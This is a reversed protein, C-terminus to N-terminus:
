GYRAELEDALAAYALAGASHPAYSGIPIGVTPAEALKVNIPIVTTFVLDGYQERVQQEVQLSLNTRRDALTCVIGGIVLSPQIERVLEITQELQPMAKLAYAHMQMPVLVADAAALANLSFLGLSPPPDLLIYDYQTRTERLAKRLLLERGVKGALELEAGALDLSSPILDVGSSTTVTAFATGREPNLLVEYVSYDLASPDVGLGQTLNAQPDLDILLVRRGREALVFGLSLTTTTKGVGGKQMALALVHGM